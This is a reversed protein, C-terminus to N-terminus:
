STVASGVHHDTTMTVILVSQRTGRHAGLTSREDAPCVSLRGLGFGTGEDTEFQSGARSAWVNDKVNLRGAAPLLSWSTGAFGLRMHHHVERVAVDLCPVAHPSM